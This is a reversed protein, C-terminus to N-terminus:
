TERRQSHAVNQETQSLIRLSTGEETAHGVVQASCWAQRAGTGDDAFWVQKCIGQLQDVLPVLALAYMVMALPCGQTTGEQSLMEMGGLVFIRSPVRYTNIIAYKFIPCIYQINHLIAKRNIRNFANDADILLVGDTADAAFIHRMAHVAAEVGASQGACLQLTGASEQVDSGVIQMIAKGM